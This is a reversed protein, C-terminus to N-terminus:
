FECQCVYECPGEPFGGYPCTACIAPTMNHTIQCWDWCLNEAESCWQSSSCGGEPCDDLWFQRCYDAGGGCGGDCSGSSVENMPCENLPAAHTRFVTAVCVILVVSLLNAVTRM